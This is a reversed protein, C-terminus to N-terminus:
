VYTVFAKPDLVIEGSNVKERVLKVMEDQAKCVASAPRESQLKELFEDQMTKTLESFLEYILEKSSLRLAVALIDQNVTKLFEVKMQTTMYRLQDLYEINDKINNALVKNGSEVKNLINLQGENDVGCYQTKSLGEAKRQKVEIISSISKYSITNLQDDFVLGVKFLGHESQTYPEIYIVKVKFPAPLQQDTLNDLILTQNPSLNLVVNKDVVMGAGQTSIDILVSSFTFTPDGTKPDIQDSRYTINKHDQYLYTFRKNKRKEFIQVDSPLSFEIYPGFKNYHDKKFIIELGTIHSYFPLDDKFLDVGSTEILKIKCSKRSVETLRGQFTYRHSGCQQWIMFEAKSNQIAELYKIILDKQYTKWYQM